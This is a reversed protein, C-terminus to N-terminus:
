APPQLATVTASAAAAARELALDAVRKAAAIDIGPYKDYTENYWKDVKNALAANSRKTKTAKRRTHQSINFPSIM